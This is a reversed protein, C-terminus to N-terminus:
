DDVADTEEKPLDCFFTVDPMLEIYPWWKGSEGMQKQYILFVTLTIQEWDDYEETFLEPHSAYVHGLVPDAFCKDLSIIIDQPIILFAERHEIPEKVKAGVLGGEFFAPYEIKPCKIGVERCWAVFKSCKQRVIQQQAENDAHDPVTEKRATAEM